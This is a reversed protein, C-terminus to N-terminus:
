IRTRDQDKSNAISEAAKLLRSEFDLAREGEEKEADLAHLLEKMLVREKGSWHKPLPLSSQHQSLVAEEAEAVSYVQSMVKQLERQELGQTNRMVFYAGKEYLLRYLEKFNLDIVSGQGLEGQVRLTVIHDFFEFKRVKQRLEEAVQESSRGAADVTVSFVQHLVVPHWVAHASGDQDLDVIYFGGSKLEELESFSNPFLPGPYAIARYDDFSKLCVTHVHGGAYYNFGKPLLSIPHSDMQEFGKGKLETVSSHFLFIKVGLESELSQRDLHEYLDQELAGRRGPLGVIKAGTREDITFKLHLRDDESPSARVVNHCLGASELVDIMTRGSPSYDHSGIVVYVHVNMDRVDKLKSVTRRLNDM